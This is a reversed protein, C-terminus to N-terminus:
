KKVEMLAISAPGTVTFGSAVIDVRYRHIGAIPQDVVMPLECTYSYFYYLYTSEGSYDNFQGTHSLWYNRILIDDRYLRVSLSPGNSRAVPGSSVEIGINCRVPGGSTEIILDGSNESAVSVTVANDKIKLTDVSLDKIHGSEVSLKKIKSSDVAEREINASKVKLSGFSATIASLDDVWLKSADIRGFYGNSVYLGPPIITGNPLTDAKTQLSMLPKPQIGDVGVPAGFHVADYNFIMTGTKGDNMSGHGVIHGNVDFKMYQQAYVGDISQQQKEISARNEGVTTQMTETAKIAAHATTATAEIESKLVANNQQMEVSVQDIRKAQAMDGEIRASQESWVGAYKGADGAMEDVAGAMSPNVQAYVGDIKTTQTSIKKDVDEQIESKVQNLAGTSAKKDLELNISDIIEANASSTDVALDASRRVAALADDNEAIYTEIRQVTAKDGEVRAITEQQAYARVDNVEAVTTDVRKSLALDGEIM